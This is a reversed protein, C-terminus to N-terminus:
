QRDNEIAIKDVALVIYLFIKGMDFPVNIVVDVGTRIKQIIDYRAEFLHFIKHNNINQRVQNHEVVRM